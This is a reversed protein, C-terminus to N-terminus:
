DSCDNEHFVTSDTNLNQRRHMHTLGDRACWQEVHSRQMMRISWWQGHTQEGNGRM